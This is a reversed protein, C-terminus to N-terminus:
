DSYYEPAAQELIMQMSQSHYPENPLADPQAQCSARSMNSGSSSRGSGRTHRPKSATYSLQTLPIGVSADDEPVVSGLQAPSSSIRGWYWNPGYSFEEDQETDGDLMDACISQLAFNPHTACKEAGQQVAAPEAPPVCRHHGSTDKLQTPEQSWQTQTQQDSHARLQAPYSRGQHIVHQPSPPHQSHQTRYLRQQEETWAEPVRNSAVGNFNPVLKERRVSQPHGLLNSSRSRTAMAIQFDPDIFEVNNPQSWDMHLPSRVHHIPEESLTSGPDEQMTNTELLESGPLAASIVIRRRSANQLVAGHSDSRRESLVETEAAQDSMGCGSTSVPSGTQWEGSQESGDMLLQDGTHAHRCSSGLRCMGYREYHCYTTKYFKDTARLEDLTHAFKCDSNYCRGTLNARCFATKDLVPADKVDNSGHAFKCRTGRTCTESQWFACLKTKIFQSEYRAKRQVHTLRTHQDSSKGSDDKADDLLADGRSSPSAAEASSSSQREITSSEHIIETEKALEVASRGLRQQQESPQM